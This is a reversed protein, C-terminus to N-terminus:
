VLTEAFELGSGTKWIFNKQFVLVNTWKCMEHKLLLTSHNCCLGHPGCLTFYKSVLGKCFVTEPGQILNYLLHYSISVAKFHIKFPLSCLPILLCKCFKIYEQYWLNCLSLGTRSAAMMEPVSVVKPVHTVCEQLPCFFPAHHHCTCIDCFRFIILFYFWLSLFLTYVGPSHQSCAVHWRLWFPLTSSVARWSTPEM